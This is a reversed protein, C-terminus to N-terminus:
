KVHTILTVQVKEMTSAIENVGILIQSKRGRPHEKLGVSYVSESGWYLMNRM